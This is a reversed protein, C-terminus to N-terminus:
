LLLELQIYLYIYTGTTGITPSRRYLTNAFSYRAFGFYAVGALIPGLFQTYM